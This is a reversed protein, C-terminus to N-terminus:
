HVKFTGWELTTHGGYWEVEYWVMGYWVMGDYWPIPEVYWEVEYWVMGYWEVVYWVM